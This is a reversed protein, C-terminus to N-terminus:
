ECRKVGSSKLINCFHMATHLAEVKLNGPMNWCYIWMSEKSVWDVSTKLNSLFLQSIKPYDMLHFDYYKGRLAEDVDLAQAIKWKLYNEAPFRSYNCNEALLNHLMQCLLIDKPLSVLKFYITEPM